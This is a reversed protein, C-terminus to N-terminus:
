VARAPTIAAVAGPWTRPIAARPTDAGATTSEKDANGAFEFALPGRPAILV